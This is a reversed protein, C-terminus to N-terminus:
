LVTNDVWTDPEEYPGAVIVEPNSNRGCCYRIADKVTGKLVSIYARSFLQKVQWFWQPETFRVFGQLINTGDVRDRRCWVVFEFKNSNVVDYNSPDEISLCWNRSQLKTKTMEELSLHLIENDSEGCYPYRKVDEELGGNVRREERRARISKRLYFSM